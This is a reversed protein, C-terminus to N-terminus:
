DQLLLDAASTAAPSSPKAWVRFGLSRLYPVYTKYAVYSKNKATSGEFPNFDIHLDVLKYEFNKEWETLLIRSIVNDEEWRPVNSYNGECREQHFKYRQRESKSLDNRKYVSKLENDLYEGVQYVWDAEKALREFNDRIKTSNERFFVIHAGTKMDIDYLMLTIAFTTKRRRQVSDCGVSITTGPYKKCYDLLYEVIDDIFDGGFKKFRKRINLTTM